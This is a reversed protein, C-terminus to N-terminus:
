NNTETQTEIIYNNYLEQLEYFKSRENKIDKQLQDCIAIIEKKTLDKLENAYTSKNGFSLTLVKKYDNTPTWTKRIGEYNKTAKATDLITDEIHGRLYKTDNVEKITEGAYNSVISYFEKLETLKCSRLQDPHFSVKVNDQNTLAYYGYPESIIKKILAFNITDGNNNNIKM